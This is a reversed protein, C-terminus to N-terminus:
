RGDQGKSDPSEEWGLLPTLPGRAPGM